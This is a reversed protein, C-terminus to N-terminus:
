QRVLLHRSLLRRRNTLSEGEAPPTSTLPTETAVPDVYQVAHLVAIGIRASFEFEGVGELATSDVFNGRQASIVFADM